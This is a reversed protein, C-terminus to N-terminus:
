AAQGDLLILPQPKGPSDIIMFDKPDVPDIGSDKIVAGKGAAKGTTVVIVGNKGRDGYIKVAGEDKFVTVTEIDASKLEKFVSLSAEQGDLLILPNTYGPRDLFNFINSEDAKIVNADKRITLKTLGGDSVVTHSSKLNGKTYEVKVTDPAATLDNTYYAVGDETSSNTAPDAGFSVNYRYEPKAFAWSFALLAPAILLVALKKARNSEIKKMMKIRKLKYYTFSNTFAFIPIKFTNNILAANYVARSYGHKLVSHDALFEHNQKVAALYVWAFPNFWLLACVVQAVVTDIYHKQRIHAKEHELILTKEMESMGSQMDMFIYGFLSFSSKIGKIDIIDTHNGANRRIMKWIKWLGLLHYAAILIVASLYGAALMFGTWDFQEAAVYTEMVPSDYVMMVPQYNIDIYYTRHCLALPFAAALGTLLFARNFRFFPESRLFVRYIMWFVAIWISAKLLYIIFAEM